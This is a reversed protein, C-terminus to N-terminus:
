DAAAHKVQVAAHTGKGRGPMGQKFKKVMGQPWALWDYGGELKAQFFAPDDLGNAPLRKLRYPDDGAKVRGIETTVCCSYGAEILLNRLAKAFPRNAQPFAYPYAFTTVAEGLQQEIEARSDRVEREVEKWAAEVLEPHSVSHSGFEVGAKRLQRVEDWTLCETGNFCRREGQIFATPLFVTATFRHEQLVPFAETYINRFGDDFTIVVTKPPLPEGGGVLRALGAVDMTRYGAEVLQRLHRRFVAPGINVKYYAAVGREPDASVSHYMLIPLRPKGGDSRLRHLPHFLATSLLRDPRM